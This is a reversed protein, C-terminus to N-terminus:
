DPLLFLRDAVLEVAWPQSLDRFSEWEQKFVEAQLHFDAPSAPPTGIRLDLTVRFPTETMAALWCPFVNGFNEQGLTQAPHVRVHHARIAVHEPPKAFEQAVRLTCAWDLAEVCGDSLRRARSFNKCGTVRAVDLTPPHRFIEEKPGQAAVNGNALVVLKECVRYAEELNHSVFLTSGGYSALTERLQRELASRLHTDLASFPEDLLLAAPEIALARALAVRQQEGGSLTGPYRGALGDIHAAALQEAVRRNKEADPLSRLGFAINEAVTLHPFLAYNQFLLGIRRAGAPVDVRRESDFLVRGHLVIRGRDPTELGAIARLTMTKGSGSPGLLGLPPGEATFEVALRFGPVIKEIAVELSM